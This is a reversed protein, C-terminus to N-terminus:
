STAKRRRSFGIGALGAGLLALAGPEPAQFVVDLSGNVAVTGGEPSPLGFSTFQGSELSLSYFPVPLAFYQSGLSTLNFSTNVGFSGCNIGTGCTATGTGETTTGTALVYDAGNVTVSWATGPTPATSSKVTDNNADLYVNLTGAGPTATFESVVTGTVDTSFTGSGTYLGYLSYLGGGNVQTCPSNGIPTGSCANLPDNGNNTQFSTAKFYISAEFTGTIVGATTTNTPTFGIVESYPGNFKDATFTNSQVSSNYTTVAGEDVTYYPFDAFAAQSGLGHTAAM